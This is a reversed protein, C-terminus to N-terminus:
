LNQDFFLEARKTELVCLTKPMMEERIEVSYLHSSLVKKRLIADWTEFIRWGMEEVSRVYHGGWVSEWKKHRTKLIYQIQM